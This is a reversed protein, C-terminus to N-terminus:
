EHVIDVSALDLEVKTGTGEVSSLTIEHGLKNMITKCLYLGLGTSKKDGRGHYGTYGKEFVRPVDEPAIGMGTDEIVLVKKKKDHDRLYISITGTKTYKLANSLIQEIVFLLWKEDTLVLTDIESYELTIKKHIFLKAYKRVAQKIIDDLSYRQILYDTSDSGLRLYSLVMEVYQEIKFLENELTSRSMSSEESQLLIRMASIPTKIQHVWLTFYNMMDTKELDYDSQLQKCKTYLSEVLVQYDEEILGEPKPLDDLTVEINTKQGELTKHLKIFRYADIIVFVLESFVCLLFSYAVSILPLNSLSFILIFILHFWLVLLIYKKNNRIYEGILKM